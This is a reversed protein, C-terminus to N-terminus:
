AVPRIGDIIPKLLRLGRPFARASPAQVFEEVVLEGGEPLELVTFRGRCHETYLIYDLGDFMLPVCPPPGAKGCDYPRRPPQSRSAVDIATGTLGLMRAPRSRLIRLRPHHQLWTAFSGRLPVQDGPIRGGRRPDFVQDVRHLEVIAQGIGAPTAQLAFSIHHASDGEETAWQGRPATLRIVPKFLRTTYVRGPELDTATGLGPAPAPPSSSSTAVNEAPPAAAKGGDGCGSVAMALAGAVVVPLVSRFTQM